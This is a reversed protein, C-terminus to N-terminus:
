CAIHWCSNGLGVGKCFRPHRLGDRMGEGNQCKKSTSKFLLNKCLPTGPEFGGVRLIGGTPTRVIFTGTSDAIAIPRLMEKGSKDFCVPATEAAAATASVLAAAFFLFIMRM